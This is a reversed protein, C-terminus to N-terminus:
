NKATKLAIVMGLGYSGWAEWKTQLCNLGEVECIWCLVWGFAPLRFTQLAADHYLINHNPVGGTYGGETQRVDCTIFEWAKGWAMLSQVTYTTFARSHLWNSANNCSATSSKACKSIIIFMKKSMDQMLPQMLSLWEMSTEVKFRLGQISCCVLLMRMTSMPLM